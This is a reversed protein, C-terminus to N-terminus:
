GAKKFDIRADLTDADSWGGDTERIRVTAPERGHGREGRALALAIRLASERDACYAADLTNRRIVWGMDAPLVDYYSPAM